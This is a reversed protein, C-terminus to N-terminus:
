VIVTELDLSSLIRRISPHSLYTLRIDYFIHSCFEIAVIHFYVEHFIIYAIHYQNWKANEDLKLIRILILDM